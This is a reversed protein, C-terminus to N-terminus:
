NGDGPLAIPENSERGFGSARESMEPGLYMWGSGLPAPCALM